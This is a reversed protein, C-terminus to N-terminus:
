KIFMSANNRIYNEISRSQFTVTNREPHYAFINKELVEEAEEDRNFFEEFAIRSIEKSNLLANIVNKGAKFHVQKRLLKAKRFKDETKTFIKKKVVEFSKGKLLKDSASKLELIRGGILDYLKGAETADIKRKNILYNFSEEETLDGIEIPDEARSWASRLQMRRPVSGESSVFVAIYTREDANDKAEDQLIDLIESNKHVLRSVNDYIIVPPKGHKEKYMESAHRFIEIVRRWQYSSIASEGGTVGMASSFFKRVLLSIISTDEFFSLNIAKGFAKGLNEFDSPVDVYIVGKGVNKAEMRTLTTKGTGREGCIVHYYSHDEESQFVKKLTESIQPRSVFQGDKVKAVPRTGNEIASSIRYESVKDVVLAILIDALILQKWNNRLFNWIDKWGFASSTHSSSKPKKLKKSIDIFKKQVLEGLSTVKKEPIKSDESIEDAKHGSEADKSNEQIVDEVKRRIEADKVNTFNRSFSSQFLVPRSNRLMLSPVRRNVFHSPLFNRSSFM